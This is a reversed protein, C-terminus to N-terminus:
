YANMALVNLGADRMESVFWQWHTAWLETNTQLQLSATPMAERMTRVAEIVQPHITPEGHLDVEVRIGPLWENLDEFAKRLVDLDMYRFDKRKERDWGQIGCFWCSRNCGQVLEVQISWPHWPQYPAHKELM